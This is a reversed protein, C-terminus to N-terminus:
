KVEAITAYQTQHSVGSRLGDIPICDREFSRSMFM